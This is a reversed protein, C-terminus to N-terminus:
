HAGAPAKRGPQVKKFLWVLAICFFCMLAIWRFVDVFAYLRSQQLVQQYIQAHAGPTGQAH